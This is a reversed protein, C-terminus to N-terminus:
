YEDCISLASANALSSVCRGVSLTNHPYDFFLSFVLGDYLAVRHSDRRRLNRSYARFRPLDRGVASQLKRKNYMEEVRDGYGTTVNM